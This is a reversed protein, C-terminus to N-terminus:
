KIACTKMWKISEKFEKIQRYTFDFIDLDKKYFHVYWEVTKEIATQADYVPEWGLLKKAKDINLM